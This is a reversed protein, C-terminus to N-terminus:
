GVMPSEIVITKTAAPVEASAPEAKAQGAPPTPLAAPYQGQGPPQHPVAAPATTAESGRRKLRIQVKGDSLHLDTLDYRKMLRVLPHIRNVDLPEGPDSAQEAM